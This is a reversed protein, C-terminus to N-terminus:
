TVNDDFTATKTKKPKKEKAPEEGQLSAIKGMMRPSKMLSTRRREGRSGLKAKIDDEASQQALEPAMGMAIAAGRSLSVRGRSEEGDGFRNSVAEKSHQAVDRLEKRIQKDADHLKELDHDAHVVIQHSTDPGSNRKGDKNKRRDKIRNLQRKWKQWTSPLKPYPVGPHTIAWLDREERAKKRSYYCTYVCRLCCAFMIILFLMVIYLATNDKQAVPPATPPETTTPPATEFAVKLVPKGLTVAISPEVQTVVSALLPELRTAARLENKLVEVLFQAEVGNPDAAVEDLFDYVAKSDTTWYGTNGSASAVYIFARASMSPNVKEGNYFSMMKLVANDVFVQVSPQNARDALTIRVARAWAAAFANSNERGITLEVPWMDVFMEIDM